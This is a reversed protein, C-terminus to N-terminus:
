SFIRGIEAVSLKANYDGTKKWKEMHALQLKKLWAIKTEEPRQRNEKREMEKMIKIIAYDLERSMGSRQLSDRLGAIVEKHKFVKEVYNRGNESVGSPNLRQGPGDHYSILLLRQQEAPSKGRFVDRNKTNYDTEPDHISLLYLKGVSRGYDDKQKFLAGIDSVEQKSIRAPGAYDVRKDASENATHKRLFGLYKLVDTISEDINQYVGRAGASSVLSSDYRTEQFQQAMVFDKTFVKSDFRQSVAPSNYTRLIEEAIKEAGTLERMEKKEPKAPEVTNKATVKEEIAGEKQKMGPKPHKVEATAKVQNEPYTASDDHGNFIKRIKEDLAIGGAVALFAAGGQIFIRKAPDEPDDNNKKSNALENENGKIIFEPQNNFNGFGM